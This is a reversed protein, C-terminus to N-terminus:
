ERPVIIWEGPSLSYGSPIRNYVQLETPDVLLLDALVELTVDQKIEYPEFAPIGSIDSTNLPIVVIWDLPLFSPLNYNIARIAEVTTNYDRAYLELSEGPIVAHIIFGKDPGMPTELALIPPEITSTPPSPTESPPIPTQTPTPSNQKTATASFTPSLTFTASHTLTMAPSLTSTESNELALGSIQSIGSIIQNWFIASLIIAILILGTIVEIRIIKKLKNNQNSHSQITKPMKQGPGGYVIPCEIFNKTLCFNRQHEFKPVALPKVRHCYNIPSPYGVWSKPDFKLGLYPCFQDNLGESNNQNEITKNNEELKSNEQNAM